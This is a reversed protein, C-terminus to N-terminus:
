HYTIHGIEERLKTLRSIFKGDEPDLLFSQWSKRISQGRSSELKEHRSLNKELQLLNKNLGKGRCTHM